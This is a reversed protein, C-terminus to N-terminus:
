KEPPRCKGENVYEYHCRYRKCPKMNGPITVLMYEMKWTYRKKKCLWCRTRFPTKINRPDFPDKEM